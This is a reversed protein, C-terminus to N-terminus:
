QLVAAQNDRAAEERRRDREGILMGGSATAAIMGTLCLGGILIEPKTIHTNITDGTNITAVADEPVRAEHDNLYVISGVSCLVGSIISVIAYARPRPRHEAGAHRREFISM